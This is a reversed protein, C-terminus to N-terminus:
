RWAGVTPDWEGRTGRPRTAVAMTGNRQVVRQPVRMDNPGVVLTGARVYSEPELTVGQVIIAGAGIFSGEGITVNGCLVAAPSIISHAGIRCDHEIKVGTNILVNEGITCDPGEWTHGMWQVGRNPIQAKFRNFLRRRKKMDGVGIHVIDDPLVEADNEIFM